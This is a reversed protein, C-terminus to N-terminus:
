RGTLRNVLRWFISCPHPDPYYTDSDQTDGLTDQMSRGRHPDNKDVMESWSPRDKNFNPNRGNQFGTQPADKACLAASRQKSEHSIDQLKNCGVWLAGLACLRVLWQRSKKTKFM